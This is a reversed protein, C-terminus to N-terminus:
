DRVVANGCVIQFETGPKKNVVDIKAHMTEALQAVLALGIGTGPTTRTLEDESRYFLQFIKKMQTKKIGVGYDRIFFCVTKNDLNLRFGIDIQKLSLKDSFKIANDVLNIIIQFFADENIEIDIQKSNKDPPLLKLQFHSAEIQASIKGAIRQLLEEASITIIETSQNQHGLRALQLVNEILRSLRESEFFIFDYYSQKKSDDVIWDSRLMEAYM